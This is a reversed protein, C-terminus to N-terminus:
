GPRDAESTDSDIRWHCAMHTAFPRPRPGTLVLASPEASVPGGPTDISARLEYRGPPLHRTDLRLQSEGPSVRVRTTGFIVSHEIGHAALTPHEVVVFDIQVDTAEAADSRLTVGVPEGAASRDTGCSIQLPADVRQLPEPVGLYHNLVTMPPGDVEVRAGRLLAVRDCLGAILDLDHSVLVVACGDQRLKEVLERCKHQFPLDGVSLVEDLLLLEPDSHAAVAFALRAVMGTSYQRTTNDVATGLGAFEVIDDIIRTLRRAPIGYTAALLEVNERGTLDPHVTGGLDIVACTRVVRRITGGTPASVGAALRLLTSKGAGNPGVIGLCEGASLDLDVGDLVTYPQQGRRHFVKSVGTMQLALDPLNV